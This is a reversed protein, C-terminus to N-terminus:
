FPIDENSRGPPEFDEISLPVSGWTWTRYWVGDSPDFGDDTPDYPEAEHRALIAATEEDNSYLDRMTANVEASEM